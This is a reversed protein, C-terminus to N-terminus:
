EEEEETEDEEEHDNDSGQDEEEEDLNEVEEVEAVEELEDADEKHGFSTKIGTQGAPTEKADPYKTMIYRDMGAEKGTRMWKTKAKAHDQIVDIM